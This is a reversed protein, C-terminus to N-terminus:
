AHYIMKNNKKMNGKIESIQSQKGDSETKKGQINEGRLM